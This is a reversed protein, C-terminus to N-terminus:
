GEGEAVSVVTFLQTTLGQSEVAWVSEPLPAADFPQVLEVRLKGSVEHVASVQRAQSVGSPLNVM